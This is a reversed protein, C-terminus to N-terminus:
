HLRRLSVNRSQSVLQTIVSLSEFIKWFVYFSNRVPSVAPFFLSLNLVIWARSPNPPLAPACRSYVGGWSRSRSRLPFRRIEVFFQLFRTVDHHREIPGSPFASQTRSGPYQPQAVFGSGKFPDVTTSTLHPSVLTEQVISEISTASTSLWHLPDTSWVFIPGTRWTLTVYMRFLKCDFNM